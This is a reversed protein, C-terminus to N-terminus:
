PNPIVNATALTHLTASVSLDGPGKNTVTVFDSAGSLDKTCHPSTKVARGGQAYAEVVSHDVLLRLRITSGSSAAGGAGGGGILFANGDLSAYDPGRTSTEIDFHQSDAPLESGITIADHIHKCCNFFVM